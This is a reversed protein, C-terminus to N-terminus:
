YEAAHILYGYYRGQVPRLPDGDFGYTKKAGNYKAADARLKQIVQAPSLGACAGISICLAAVGAVHPAAFSTGIGWVGAGGDIFTSNICVGPAAITHAQDSPLTAFDSFDAAVDDHDTCFDLQPFPFSGANLGGPQGDSDWLATVTLVEDYSAPFRSAVDVNDNAAAVVYVVGAAVSACIAAHVADKNTRGCNGDDSGPGALSMNAVRIDNTPDLDIRKATVWDIGCIIQAATGEAKKDLVKVAWLPTGPAIGVVGSDNDKAGLVGAVVTGHGEDDDASQNKQVCNTGGVVNLDPHGLDIGTDLVAVNVSVAGSGDGSRTSSLEGDIRNIGTPLAQAAATVRTNPSVFAVRPDSRVLRLAHGSLNAAYGKLAYRYVAFVEAGYKQAHAHAVADTDASPKLVVVYEGPPASAAAPSAIAAGIVIAVALALIRNTWM